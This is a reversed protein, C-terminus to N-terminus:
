KRERALEVTGKYEYNRNGKTVRLIYYYTGDEVDKGNELKGDWLQEESVGQDSSIKRLLNGQRSYFLIEWSDAYDLGRIVYYDNIDNGDPSFGDYRRIDRRSLAVDDEVVTCKGNTITWRFTYDRPEDLNESGLDLFSAPDYIDTIVADGAELTWVGTGATPPTAYLRVTDAFFVVSDNGAFAPEPQKYFILEISDRSICQWNQETWLIWYHLSDASGFITRAVTAAGHPNTFTMNDDGETVSWTGLGVDKAATLAVVSDCVEQSSTTINTVPIKYVSATAMGTMGSEMATCGNDDTISLLTITYSASDNTTRRMEFTREAPYYFNDFTTTSLGDDFEFTFPSRGTLQILINYNILAGGKLYCANQYASDVIHGTPRPNIHVFTSSSTDPCAGSVIVRRYWASDTLEETTYNKQNSILPAIGWSINDASKIWRYIYNEKDGGSVQGPGATGEILLPIIYCTSDVPGNLLTNNRISDQVFIAVLNSSDHCVGSIVIRKYYTTDSIRPPSFDLGTSDTSLWSLSDPSSSIWLCAYDGIGGAIAPPVDMLRGPLDFDCITQDESILNNLVMPHVNIIVQNSTDRCAGSHILRRFYTSDTMIGPDYSAQDIIGTADAWTNGLWYRSQWTYNYIKNGGTVSGSAQVIANTKEGECSTNSISVIVNNGQIVPHVIISVINSTDICADESGSYIIKRYYVTDDLAGPSYHDTVVPMDSWNTKDSSKQWRFRYDGPEGGTLLGSSITGPKTFQCISTDQYLTNGRISDLVTITLVNSTDKCVHSTVIRRYFTTDLLGAPAHGLQNNIGDAPLWTSYDYSLQWLYNYDKQNGGGIAAANHYLPQPSGGQVITDDAAIVNNTLAPLINITYILSTDKTVGSTVIRRYYTTDLLPEPAFYVTDNRGPGANTWTLRNPSQQWVYSFIGNGGKPYSAWITDPRIHQCVDQDYPMINFLFGRIPINLNNLVGGTTITITASWNQGTPLHIGPEGCELTFSVNSPMSSFKHWILGGGGYGGPGTIMNPDNTNGGNGGKVEMRISGIYNEVDTVIIGGGGGGGGGATAIETVTEGNARITDSGLSILSDSILIIIGGGNGGKSPKKSPLRQTGTGGGGGM